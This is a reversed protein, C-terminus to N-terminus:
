AVEILQLILTKFAGVVRHPADYDNDEEEDQRRHEYQAGTYSLLRLGHPLAQGDPEVEPLNDGDHHFEVQLPRGGDCLRHAHQGDEVEVHL